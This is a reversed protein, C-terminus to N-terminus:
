FGVGVTGTVFPVVPGGTGLVTPASPILAAGGTIETTIYVKEHAWLRAKAGLSGEFGAGERQDPSRAPGLLFGPADAGREIEALGAGPQVVVEARGKSWVPITAEARFHVMETPLRDPFLFGAGSGCAELAVYRWVGVEGCIMANAGGGVGQIGGRLEVVAWGAVPKPVFPARALVPGVPEAALAAAPALGWLTVAILLRAKM